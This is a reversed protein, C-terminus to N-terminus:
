ATSRPQTPALGRVVHDHVFDRVAAPDHLDVVVSPMLSLSLLIRVIWEGARRPDLDARVEGRAKADAILPQWFEVWRAVLREARSTLLVALLTEDNPLALTLDADRQHMCIFVAAEGVQTALSRRRRVAPESTAVFEDATRELVADVLADRDAFYRYVSGRSVGAATAVDAMSWRRLGFRRVCAEAGALIRARTAAERDAPPRASGPPAALSQAAASPAISTAIV